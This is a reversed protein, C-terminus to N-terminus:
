GGRSLRINGIGHQKRAKTEKWLEIADFEPIGLEIQATIHEMMEKIIDLTVQSRVNLFRRYVRVKFLELSLDILTQPCPDLDHDFDVIVNQTVTPAEALTLQTYGDGDVSTSYDSSDLLIGDQKRYRYELFDGKWVRINTPNKFALTVTLSDNDLYGVSEATWFRQGAVHTFLSTYKAPLRNKLESVAAKLETEADDEHM